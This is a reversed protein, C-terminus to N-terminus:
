PTVIVTIRLLDLWQAVDTPLLVVGADDVAALLEEITAARGAVMKAEAHSSQVVAV